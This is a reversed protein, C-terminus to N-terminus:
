HKENVKIFVSDFFDNGIYADLKWVGSKPLSMNSPFHRDAGNNKGALGGEAITISTSENEHTALIKVNGELEEDTGWFHWMYKNTQNPYFKIVESDDYIFGLREKKGIMTYDEVQFLPSVAWENELTAIKDTETKGESSESCGIMTLGLFIMGIALTRKRMM